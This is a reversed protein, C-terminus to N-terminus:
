ATSCGNRMLSPRNLNRADALLWTRRKMCGYMRTLLSLRCSSVPALRRLLRANRLRMGYYAGSEHLNPRSTGSPARAHPTGAFILLMPTLVFEPQTTA